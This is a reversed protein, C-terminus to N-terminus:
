PEIGWGQLLPDLRENVVASGACTLHHYDRFAAPPLNVEAMNVYTIRPHDAAAQLAAQYAAMEAPNVQSLFSEHLPHELLVLEWEARDALQVIQDLAWRSVRANEFWPSAKVMTGMQHTYEPGISQDTCVWGRAQISSRLQFTNLVMRWRLRWPLAGEAVHKLRLVPAVRGLVSQGWSDQQVRGSLRREALPVFKSPWITLVVAKVKSDAGGEREFAEMWMWTSVLDQAPSAFRPAGPLRVDGAHSDGFVVVPQGHARQLEGRAARQLHLHALCWALCLIALVGLPRLVLARM